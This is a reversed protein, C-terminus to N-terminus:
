FMVVDPSCAWRMISVRLNVMQANADIAADVVRKAVDGHELLRVVRRVGVYGGGALSIREQVEEPSLESWLEAVSAGRLAPPPLADQSSDREDDESHRPSDGALEERLIDQSLDDLSLSTTSAYALLQKAPTVAAASGDAGGPTGLVPIAAPTPSSGYMALLGGIVTGTTTRGAGMQCNFVLPRDFGTARVQQLIADVDVAQPARGDTVPVRLYRVALGKQALGEYVEAPTQVASAGSIPEWMDVLEGTSSMEISGDAAAASERAVLIRGGYHAAEALVDQKLRAEMRELREADIGAYEQLNKMPRQQERLVFPLGNIYIVPEERMNFWLVETHQGQQQEAVAQLVRRIGQVTCMAVGYVPPGAMRRFNGAGPLLQPLRSNKMGPFYDEKLITLAGLVAGARAEVIVDVRAEALSMVPDDHGAHANTTGPPLTAAPIHLELAALPNRRLMRSLISRLEPRSDMWDQFTVHHPSAPDFRSWTLYSTFAILMYYRELYELCVGMLTARRSEKSEAMLRGRYTTIAERLNQMASCADIVADLIVKGYGGRELVRLLSRVVGYMGNKLKQDGNLSSTNPSALSGSSSGCFAKSRVFWAPVAPQERLLLQELEQQHADPHQGNAHSAAVMAPGPQQSHGHGAAMVGTGNCVPLVTGNGTAVAARGPSTVAACHAEAVAACAPAMTAIAPFASIRRLAVLTAVIMGTTTRGRGMQCNFVLAADAPVNWLRRILLEFDSDKPAKEDTVPVRMYDVDYGDQVLEAYVELPTQVDSETVPEWVDIVNMDDDEETVLIHQEYRAAERLVDRKLRSEMDEVHSRDIGTYEVNCFPQDAERVVYPKGNIYLVPEERMNHWLVNRQGHAAGLVDLVNRLGRVTPIAVGYVPLGDVQRFNPAGDLLPTLKTNQCGPFHDAKLLTNKILVDGVRSAIVNESKPWSQVSQDGNKDFAM